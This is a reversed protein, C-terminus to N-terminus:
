QGGFCLRINFSDRIPSGDACRRAAYVGSPDFGKNGMENLVSDVLEKNLIVVTKDAESTSQTDVPICTAKNVQPVENPTLSPPAFTNGPGCGYALLLVLGLPALTTKKMDQLICSISEPIM